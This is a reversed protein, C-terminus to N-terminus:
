RYPGICWLEFVLSRFFVLSFIFYSSSCLVRFQSSLLKIDTLTM